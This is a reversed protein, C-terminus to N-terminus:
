HNWDVGRTARPLDMRLDQRGSRHKWTESALRAPPFTRWITVDLSLKGLDSEDMVVRYTDLDGRLFSKGIQIEPRERSISVDQHTVYTAAVRQGNPSAVTAEARYVFRRESADQDIYFVLVLTRGDTLQADFYWWEFNEPKYLEPIRRGDEWLELRPFPTESEAIKTATNKDM